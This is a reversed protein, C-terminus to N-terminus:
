SSVCHHAREVGQGGLVAREGLAAPEDVAGAAAPEGERARVAALEQLPLDGLVDFRELGPVAAVGRQERVLALHEGVQAHEVEAVLQQERALARAQLLEEVHDAAVLEAGVDLQVLARELHALQRQDARLRAADGAGALEARVLVVVHPRPDALVPTSTKQAAEEVSPTRPV